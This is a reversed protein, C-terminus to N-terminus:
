KTFHMTNARFRPAYMPEWSVDAGLGYVMKVAFLPIHYVEEYGINGVETMLQTREAGEPTASAKEILEQLERFCVRSSRSFCGSRLNGQRQFDLIEDSTAIEYAHSSTFYPSAPGRASCDLAERYGPENTYVGCGSLQIERAKALDGWANLNSTVGVERWYTIVAELIELGRINSGPRSNIDIANAPDYGAEALLQRALDPNYERPRSNESTVGVSGPPSISAHCQIQGSFLSDMLGQCDIAHALAQRVQKKQLEPHWMTDLILAYVETTTGTKAQPVRSVEDFGIDAAWDAEGTALMSARVIAEPRYVHVIEQITPLQSDFVGSSIYDEYIEFKTHVGPQWDSIAYPGFSITQANREDETMAQYSEPELFKSFIGTRPFIPCPSDCVVDVKMPEGPVLEGHIVGGIYSNGNGSYDSHGNYEFGYLTSEPTFPKGNHYKVGERLTYRWRNPDIQEYHTFGSLLELEYTTSNIWSIPDVTLEACAMSHIEASCGYSWGGISAPEAETVVTASDRASVMPTPVATAQPAPTPQGPVVNGPAPTSPQLSPPTATAAAGCAVLFLATVAVLSLLWQSWRFRVKYHRNLMVIEQGTVNQEGGLM